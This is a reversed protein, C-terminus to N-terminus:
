LEIRAFCIYNRYMCPVIFQRASVQKLQHPMFEYGRDLNKLTPTKDVEGDPTISLDTILNQRREMTNFLFHLMDGTNVLGYGIYMDTIDDYQDKKIINGWEVKCDPTVSLVAINKAYYGRNNGYGYGFRSWPYDGLFPSYGYNYYGLGFGFPSLGFPNMLFNNDFNNGNSTTYVLEAGIIFGGNHLMIINQLFYNNFAGKISGDGRADSRLQDNFLINNSVLTQKTAVDWLCAYLGDINGRHQGSFFSTILYHKNYNDVKVRIDKLYINTINLNYVSISDNLEPKTILIASNINNNQYTAAKIFAVNGDNDVQFETLFSKQGEEMNVTIKSKHLPKLFKDLLITTIGKATQNKGNIKFLLIKEKNESSVVSYIKNSSNYGIKTTDLVVMEDVVKGDGNFKLASCYVIDRKQYQFIMYFFNAYSIFDADYIREHFNDLQVKNKLKMNADYVNFFHLDRYNKYVVFNNEVKGIIEFNINRPEERDPESYVIQQAYLSANYAVLTLLLLFLIRKIM